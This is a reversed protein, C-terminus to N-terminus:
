KSSIGNSYYGNDYRNLCQISLNVLDKLEKKNRFERRLENNTEIGKGLAIIAKPVKGLTRTYPLICYM